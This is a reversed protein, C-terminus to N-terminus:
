HWNVGITIAGIPKGNAPVILFWPRTPSQWFPTRFGSFYAIDAETTLLVASLNADAM